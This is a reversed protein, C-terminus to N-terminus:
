PRVEQGAHVTGAIQAVDALRDAPITHSGADLCLACIHFTAGDLFTVTVTGPSRHCSECQPIQGAQPPATNTRDDRRRYLNVASTVMVALALPLATRHTAPDNSLYAHVAALLCGAPLLQWALWGVQVRGADRLPEPRQGAGGPDPSDLWGTVVAPSAVAALWRRRERRPMSALCALCPQGSYEGRWILWQCSGRRHRPDAELWANFDVGRSWSGAATLVVITCAGALIAGPASALVGAWAALLLATVYGVILVAAAPRGWSPGAGIVRRADNLIARTPPSTPCTDRGHAPACIRQFLM